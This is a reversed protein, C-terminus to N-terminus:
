EHDIQLLTLPDPADVQAQSPPLRGAEDLPGPQPDGPRDGNREAAGALGVVEPDLM